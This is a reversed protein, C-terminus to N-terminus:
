SGVGLCLTKFSKGREKGFFSFMEGACRDGGPLGDTVGLDQPRDFILHRCICLQLITQSLTIVFELQNSYILTFVLQNM